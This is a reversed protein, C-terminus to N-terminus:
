SGGALVALIVLALVAIAAAGSKRFCGPNRNQQRDRANDDPDNGWVNDNVRM